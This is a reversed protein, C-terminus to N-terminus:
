KIVVSTVCHETVVYPVKLKEFKQLLQEVETKMTQGSLENMIIISSKAELSAMLSCLGVERGHSLMQHKLITCAGLPVCKKAAVRAFNGFLRVIEQELCLRLKEREVRQQMKLRSLESREENDDEKAICKQVHNNIVADHLPSIDEYGPSNVNAGGKILEEVIDLHGFNCAEHLPTWGAYDKSNVIIGAKILDITDEIDGKIAALHLPTEGRENRKNIRLVNSEKKTVDKKRLRTFMQGEDSDTEQLEKQADKATVELLYQLQQRETLPYNPWPPEKNVPSGIVPSQATKKSAKVSPSPLKKVKSPTGTQLFLKRKSGIRGGKKKITSDKLQHRPEDELVIEEPTTYLSITEVDSKHNLRGNAPTIPSDLNTAELTSVM